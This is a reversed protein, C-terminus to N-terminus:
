FLRTASMGSPDDEWGIPLALQKPRRAEVASWVPGVRRRPLAVIPLKVGERALRQLVANKALQPRNNTESLHALWVTPNRQSHRVATALLQGCDANSLHGTDSLVRRKLQATYPGRRLMEEDHNAELIVLDSAAISEAARGSPTGLDTLVTVAGSGASLRFGCPEAADHSVSIADIEIDAVSVRGASPLEIWGLGPRNCARITGGTAIVATMPNAIRALSRMHDTHEHSILIADLRDSSLGHSTLAASLGRPEIGCDVLIATQATRVLLANGSSGSGLSVVDLM